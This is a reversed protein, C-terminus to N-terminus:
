LTGSQSSSTLSSVDVNPEFLVLKNPCFENTLDVKTQIGYWPQDGWALLPVGLEMCRTLLYFNDRNYVKVALAAESEVEAIREQLSPGDHPVKDIGYLHLAVVLGLDPGLHDMADGKAPATDMDYVDLENNLIADRLLNSLATRGHVLLQGIAVGLTFRDDKNGKVLGIVMVRLKPNQKASVNEHHIFKSM